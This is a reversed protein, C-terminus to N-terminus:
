WEGLRGARRAGSPQEARHVLPGGRSPCRRRKAPTEHGCDLRQRGHHRDERGLALPWRRVVASIAARKATEDIVSSRRRRAPRSCGAACNPWRPGPPREPPAAVFQRSSDAPIQRVSALEAALDPDIWTAKQGDPELLINQGETYGAERLGQRFAEFMPDPNPQTGQLVGIRPMKGAQEAQTAPPRAVASALTLLFRRRDLGLHHSSRGASAAGHV